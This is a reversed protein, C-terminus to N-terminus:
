NVGGNIPFVQFQTEPSGDLKTDPPRTRKIFAVSLAAIALEPLSTGDRQGIAAAKIFSIQALFTPDAMSAACFGGATMTRFQRFLDVDEYEGNSLAFSSMHDYFTRTNATFPNIDSVDLARDAAPLTLAVRTVRVRMELVSTAPEWSIGKADLDALM